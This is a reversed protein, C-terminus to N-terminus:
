KAEPSSGEVWTPPFHPMLFLGSIGGGMVHNAAPAYDRGEGGGGEAGRNPPRCDSVRDGGGGGGGGGIPRDTVQPQM